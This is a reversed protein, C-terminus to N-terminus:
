IAIENNTRKIPNKEYYSISIVMMHYITRTRCFKRKVDLLSSASIFSISKPRESKMLGPLIQENTEM